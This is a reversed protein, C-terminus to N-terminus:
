RYERNTTKWMSKSVHHVCEASSSASCTAIKKIKFDEATLINKVTKETGM